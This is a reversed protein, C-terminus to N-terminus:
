LNSGFMGGNKVTGSIILIPILKPDMKSGYITGNTETPSFWQVPGAESQLQHLVGSRWAESPKPVGFVIHKIM